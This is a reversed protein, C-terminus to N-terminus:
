DVTARQPHKAVVLRSKARALPPWGLSKLSASLVSWRRPTVGSWIEVWLGGKAARWVENVDTAETQEQICERINMMSWSKHWQKERTKIYSKNKISRKKEKKKERSSRRVETKNQVGEQQKNGRKGPQIESPSL